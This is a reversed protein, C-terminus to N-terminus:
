VVHGPQPDVYKTEAYKQFQDDNVMEDDHVQTARVIITSRTGGNGLLNRAVISSPNWVLNDWVFRDKLHVDSPEDVPPLLGADTAQRYGLVLTVMDVSYAGNGADELVGETRSAELVPILVPGKWMRSAGPDDEDYVNSIRSTEPDWFWWQVNVGTLQQQEAIGKDISEQEFKTDFYAGM